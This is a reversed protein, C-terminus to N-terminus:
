VKAFLDYFILLFLLLAVIGIAKAIGGGGVSSDMCYSDVCFKSNSSGIVGVVLASVSDLIAISSAFIV